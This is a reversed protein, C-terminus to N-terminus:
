GNEIKRYIRNADTPWDRVFEDQLYGLNQQQWSGDYPRGGILTPTDLGVVRGKWCERLEGDMSRRGIHAVLGDVFIRFIKIESKLGDVIQPVAIKSRLPVLNQPQGITDIAILIMPFDFDHPQIEKAVIKRLKERSNWDLRLERFAELRSNVSRWLVSLFFMRLAVGDAHPFSYLCANFLPDRETASSYGKVPHHRWCLGFQEAQKSFASDYGALILEGSETVLEHDFWSDHRIKPRAGLGGLEVRMVKDLNLNTYARPIIHSKVYNGENGTLKCKV